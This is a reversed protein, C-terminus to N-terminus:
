KQSMISIVSINTRPLYDGRTLIAKQSCFITKLKGNKKSRSGQFITKENLNNVCEWREKKKDKNATRYHPLMDWCIADYSLARRPFHRSLHCWRRVISPLRIVKKWGWDSCVLTLTLLVLCYVEVTEIADSMELCSARLLTLLVNKNPWSINPSMSKLQNESNFPLLTRWRDKSSSSSLQLIFSWRSSVQLVQTSSFFYRRTAFESCVSSLLPLYFHMTLLSCNWDNIFALTRKEKFSIWANKKGSSIQKVKEVDWTQKDIKGEIRM